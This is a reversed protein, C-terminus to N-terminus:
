PEAPTEFLDLQGDLRPRRFAASSLPSRDTHLGSRRACVAVMRAIQEAYPGEGRMRAGFRADSLAGNRTERVAREVRAAREPRERRLWDLFLARVQHPLRLLVWGVGDAGAEAAARILAPVEHDNLGPIVPAVLVGVSVGAERLERIARLRADPASARPEMSRSLDADLTTLSVIVRTADHRALERLLDADRVVLRNKTVIGVPQRAEAMVELCGRTIGLTRELPQYPDTVGSMAIPEGAWRPAALARRLLAPADHKVIITTEFDLGCSLGLNEHTPRAYCYVCGHECGRYPNMTWSFPLDPSDVRNVISRTRDAISRTPVQVGNPHEDHM